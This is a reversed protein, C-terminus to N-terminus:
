FYFIYNYLITIIFIRNHRILCVFYFICFESSLFRRLIRNYPLHIIVSCFLSSIVFPNVIIMCGSKYDWVSTFPDQYVMLNNYDPNRLTIVDILHIVDIQHSNMLTSFSILFQDKRSILVANVLKILHYLLM